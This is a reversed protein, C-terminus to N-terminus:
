QPFLSLSPLSWGSYVRVFTMWGRQDDWVVKFALAVVRPDTVEVTLEREGASILAKSGRIKGKWGPVKKKKGGKGEEGEAVEMVGGVVVAPGVEGPGPFYDIVGDLLVEVGIGKFASGCLVPLAEGNLTLARIAARLSAPPLLLHSPIDSNPSPLDFFEELLPLHHTSLTEILATRALIAEKRVPHDFALLPESSSASSSSKKGSAVDDEWPFTEGEETFEDFVRGETKIEEGRKGVWKWVKGSVIDVLGVVGPDGRKGNAVDFSTIPLALLLPLPHLRNLTSLLSHRLNAGPRDLKNVYLIRPTVDYRCIYLVNLYLTWFCASSRVSRTLQKWVGETQGEVGEVGDMVVIAGDVVRAAREVEM